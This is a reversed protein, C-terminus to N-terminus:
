VVSVLVKDIWDDGDVFMIYEGRIVKLATNRAASAGEKM